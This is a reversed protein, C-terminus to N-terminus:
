VRERCSARGIQAFWAGARDLQAFAAHTLDILRTLPNM